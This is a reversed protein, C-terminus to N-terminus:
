DWGPLEAAGPSLEKGMDVTRQAGKGVVVFGLFTAYESMSVATESKTGRDILIKGGSTKAKVTESILIKDDYNKTSGVKNILEDGAYVPALFADKLGFTKAVSYVAFRELLEGYNKPPAGKYMKMMDPVPRSQIWRDWEGSKTRLPMNMDFLKDARLIVFYAQNYGEKSLGSWEKGGGLDPPYEKLRNLTEKDKVFMGIPINGRKAILDSAYVWVPVMSFLPNRRAGSLSPDLMMEMDNLVDEKEMTGIGLNKGIATQNMKRLTPSAKIIDEPKETIAPRGFDVVADGPETLGEIFDDLAKHLKPYEWQTVKGTRRLSIRGPADQDEPVLDINLKDMAQRMVDAIADFDKQTGSIELHKTKIGRKPDLSM